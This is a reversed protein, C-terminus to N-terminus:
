SLVELFADLLADHETLWPSASRRRQLDVMHLHQVYSPPRSGDLSILAIQKELAAAFGVEFACFTSATTASSLMLVFRDRARLQSVIEDHWVKGSGISDTCVFLDANFHKRVYAIPQALTKEDSVAHSLFAGGLKRPVQSMPADSGLAKRVAGWLELNSGRVSQVSWGDFAPAVLGADINLAIARRTPADIGKAVRKVHDLDTGETLVVIREARLPEDTTHAAIGQYKAALREALNENHPSAVFCWPARAQPEVRCSWDESRHSGDCIPMTSSRGCICRKRSM